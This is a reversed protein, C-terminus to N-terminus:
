SKGGNKVRARERRILDMMSDFPRGGRILKGGIIFSPTGNLTIADALQLNRSLISDIERTKMDNELKVPDMGLGTAIALIRNKTLRGNAKMMANHFPVYKGQKHSALAARAATVSAPGLIPWEKYVLKVKPDSKLIKQVIPLVRKCVGCHYDFFEVIVVDGDKPGAFPTDPDDLLEKKRSKIASTVTAKERAKRKQEMRRMSEIVVEPHDLIYQRVVEEVANKQDATLAEEARAVGTLNAYVTAAALIMAAAIRIGSM